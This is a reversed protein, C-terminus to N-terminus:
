QYKINYQIKANWNINTAIKGTIRMVVTDSTLSLQATPHPGPFSGSGSLPSGYLETALAAGVKAYQASSSGAFTNTRDDQECRWELNVIVTSNPPITLGISIDTPTADTTSINDVYREIWEIKPQKLKKRILAM